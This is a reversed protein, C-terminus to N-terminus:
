PVEISSKYRLACAYDVNNILIIRKLSVLTLSDDDQVIFTTNQWVNSTILQLLNDLLDQPHKNQLSLYNTKFDQTIKTKKPKTETNSVKTSKLYNFSLVNLSKSVKVIDHFNNLEYKTFTGFDEEAYIIAMIPDQHLDNDASNLSHNSCFGNNQSRLNYCTLCNESSNDFHEIGMFALKPWKKSIIESKIKCQHNEDKLQRCHLCPKLAGCCHNLQLNKGNMKGHRYMFKNCKLCKYGFTGQGCCHLKHGKFCHQSYCTVNCIKCTFYAEETVNKDCFENVLKENIYTNTTQFFRRCSFCCKRKLCLHKYNHTSFTKKCGFCIKVNARCYSSYNRIFVLHNKDEIPQFLYIPKLEDQYDEPYMYLLKKSNHISDFIFFQCSYYDSLLKITEELEYPGDQPLKTYKLLENLESLIINGAHIQKASNSSNINQAYLFRRDKRNSEFYSHQLNGLISATLLCKEQFINLHLANKNKFNYPVDLAWFYNFKKTPKRRSGYTKRRKYFEKTRKKHVRKRNSEKFKIHPISLVKLYVKFTEDLKLTQNSVLFQELMKLVREIIQVGSDQIDFGGTNLGNIMPKQYLTLYAINHDENKYYQRIQSIIYDFGIELFNLIDRLMPSESKPDKLKVKIYFLHDELRFKKQKVHNGKEIILQLNGEEFIINPLTSDMNLNQFVPQVQNVNSTSAVPAVNHQMQPQVQLQGQRAELNEKENQKLWNKYFSEM